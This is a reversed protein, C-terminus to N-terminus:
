TSRAYYSKNIYDPIQILMPECTSLYKLGLMELATTTLRFDKQITKPHKKIYGDSFNRCKDTAVCSGCDDIIAFGGEIMKEIYQSGIGLRRGERTEPDVCWIGTATYPPPKMKDIKGLIVKARILNLRDNTEKRKASYDYEKKPKSKIQSEIRYQLNVAEKYTTDQKKILMM